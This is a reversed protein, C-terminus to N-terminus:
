SREVLNKFCEQKDENKWGARSLSALTNFIDGEVIDCNQTHHM